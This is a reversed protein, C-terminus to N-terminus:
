LFQARYPRRQLPQYQLGACCSNHLGDRPWKRLNCFIDFSRTVPTQSPFEGPVPSNGACLALLAPFTEMQHRWWATFGYIICAPDNPAKETTIWYLTFLRIPITFSNGEYQTFQIQYSFHVLATELCYMIVHLCFYYLIRFKIYLIINLYIVSMGIVRKWPNM